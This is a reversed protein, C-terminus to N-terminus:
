PSQQYYQKKKKKAEHDRVAEFVCTQIKARLELKELDDLRSVYPLLSLFFHHDDSMDSEMLKVAKLPTEMLRDEELFEEERERKRGASGQNQDYGEDDEEPFSSKTDQQLSNDEFTMESDTSDEEKIPPFEFNESSHGPTIVQRAFEMRDSYKWKRQSAGPKSAMLNVKKRFTDKLNKWKKKCEEGPLNLSEGVEDWQKRTINGNKFDVHEDNWLCPRCEVNSILIQYERESLKRLRRGTGTM